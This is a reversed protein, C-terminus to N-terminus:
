PAGEGLQAYVKGETCCTLNSYVSAVLITVDVAAVRRGCETSVVASEGVGARGEIAFGQSGRRRGGHVLVPGDDWEWPENESATRFCM